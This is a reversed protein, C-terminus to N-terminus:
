KAVFLTVENSDVGDMYVKVAVRGAVFAETPVNANIQWVGSLSPAIGSFQIAPSEVGGIFVQPTSSTKSLNALSPPVGDALAPVVPGQGTAFIQIVSGRTAPNSASNVTSNQNLIAGQPPTALDLTFIGPASRLVTVTGNLTVGPTKVQIARVGSVTAAPVMFNVQTPSVFYLPADTGDVTVVVNGLTKLLPYGATPTTLAGTFAGYAAACSGAAVPQDTRSSACNIIAVQAQLGTCFILTALVTLRM